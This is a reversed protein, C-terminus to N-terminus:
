AESREDAPEDNPNTQSEDTTTPPRRTPRDPEDPVHSRDRQRGRRGRHRPRRPVRLAKGRAIDSRVAELAGQKTRPRPAGTRAEARAARRPAAIEADVEDDTPRSRRRRSSRACRSTPSCRGHRARACRTSSRRRIRAPRRSTSSSRRREPAVAPARSRRRPPADREDVLADPAEIPVLDAAAELVKDRVAMQAQLKQMMELRTRIDARLEDVTDFESAEDVWEDTLEPLVKQKAEKVLVQFTSRTAPASASASPCRRTSSSSPARASAACSSTSSPCSWRGLRRRLPLRDRHPGRGARRRDLGHHRDRRLREDILPYESDELDAFRERLADVQQDVADDDIAEYPLEVAARRLRALRVQPRVEVVADFEVDGDEEGATIEIEPPAIVDVDNPRSPRSTTSPCRTACRRSARSRPASAPRSCSAPRRAPGSARSGCRAPWSRFAADIAREFEDAPVTVHLKVKNGDLTEVTSQMLFFSHLSPDACNRNGRAPVSPLPGARSPGVIRAHGGVLTDRVDREGHAVEVRAEVEVRPERVHVDDVSALIGVPARDRPDAVQGPREHEHQDLRRRGEARVLAEASGEAM